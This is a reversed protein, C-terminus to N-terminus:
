VGPLDQDSNSCGADVEELCENAPIAKRHYGLKRRNRSDLNGSHDIRESLSDVRVQKCHPNRMQSCYARNSRGPSFRLPRRRASMMWSETPPVVVLAESAARAGRPSSTKLANFRNSRSGKSRSPMNKFFWDNRPNASSGSSFGTERRFLRESSKLRARAPVRRHRHAHPVREFVHGLRVSRQFAPSRDALHHENEGSVRILPSYCSAFELCRAEPSLIAAQFFKGEEM